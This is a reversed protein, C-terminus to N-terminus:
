GASTGFFLRGVCSVQPSQYCTVLQEILRWIWVAGDYIFILEAALDALNSRESAWLLDGFAEAELIACFYRMTKARLVELQLFPDFWFITEVQNIENV